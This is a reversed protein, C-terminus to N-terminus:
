IIYYSPNVGLNREENTASLSLKSLVTGNDKMYCQMNIAHGPHMM